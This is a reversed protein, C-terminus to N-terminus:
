KRRRLLLATAWMVGLVITGPEPVESAGLSFSEITTPMPPITEAGTALVDNATNSIGWDYGDAQAEALTTAAGDVGNNAWAAIAITATPSNGGITDVVEGKLFGANFAQTFFHLVTGVPLLISLADGTGPAALMQSDYATGTSASGGLPAGSYVTTGAPTDIASSGQQEMVSYGGYTVNYTGASVNYIAQKFLGPGAVNDMYFLVTGQSYGSLAGALLMMVTLPKKM